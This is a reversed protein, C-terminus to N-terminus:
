LLANCIPLIYNVYNQSIDIYQLMEESINKLTYNKIRFLGDEDLSRYCNIDLEHNLYKRRYKKLYSFLSEQSGQESAKLINSIDRLIYDKCLEKSEESLGKIDLSNDASSYYFEKNNIYLYSTYTGKKRFTFTKITSVKPTKNILFLADKKIALIQEPTIDNLYVFARRADALTDLIIKAIAPNSKQLLGEKVTRAHKDLNEWEIIEKDSLLKKLKLVSFGAAHMDWEAIDVNKLYEIEKNLYNTKKALVMAPTEQM